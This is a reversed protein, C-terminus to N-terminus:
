SETEVTPPEETPLEGDEYFDSPDEAEEIGFAEFCHAVEDPPIRTFDAKEDTLIKKIMMRMFAADDVVLIRLAM